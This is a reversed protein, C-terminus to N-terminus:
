VSSSKVGEKLLVERMLEARPVWQIRVMCTFVCFPRFVQRSEHRMLTATHKQIYVQRPGLWVSCFHPCVSLLLHWCLRTAEKWKWTSMTGQPAGLNNWNPPGEFWFYHCDSKETLQSLTTRLHEFHMDLSVLNIIMSLFRSLVWHFVKFKLKHLKINASCIISSILLGDNLFDILIHSTM